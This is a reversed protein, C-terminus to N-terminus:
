SSRSFRPRAKSKIPITGGVQRYGRKTMCDEIATKAIGPGGGFIEALRASEAHEAEYGVAFCEGSGSLITMM